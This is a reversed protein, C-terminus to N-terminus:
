PSKLLLSGPKQNEFTLKIFEDSHASHAIWVEDLIGQFYEKTDPPAWNSQKLNGYGLRWYGRVNEGTVTTPDQAVKGGDVFFAQGATSLRAAVHHWRGDNMPASADLIRYTSATPMPTGPVLPPFVGFHVTGDRYMYILRDWYTTTKVTDGDTFDFLRGGDATSTRFWGSFTFVNPNDFAKASGMFRSVGDFAIGNGVVGSATGGPERFGVALGTNGMGSADALRSGATFPDQDLHWAAVFGDDLAFVSGPPWPAPPSGPGPHDWYLRVKQLSDAFVTDVRVWLVGTGSSKDWLQVECPLPDGRENTARLDSADGRAASFDFGTEALSILLPFRAVDRALLAGTSTTNLPVAMSRKWALYPGSATVSTEPKVEVNWAFAKPPQTDGLNGYVVSDVKGAPISDFTIVQAAAGVKRYFTSGPIYVYGTVTDAAGALTAEVKGPPRLIRMPLKETSDSISIGKIQLRNGDALSVAELNYAGNGVGSFGYRGKSDTTDLHISASGAAIQDLPNYDAPVLRVLTRGAPLGDLTNLTGMLGKTPNGTESGTNCGSLFALFWLCAGSVSIRISVPMRNAIM